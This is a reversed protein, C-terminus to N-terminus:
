TESLSSRKRGFRGSNIEEIEIAEVGIVKNKKTDVEVMDVSSSDQVKSSFSTQKGLDLLM